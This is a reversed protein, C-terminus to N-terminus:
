AYVRQELMLPEDQSKILADNCLHAPIEFYTFVADKLNENISEKNTGGTLIGDINTSEAAWSGDPFVEIKFKISGITGIAERMAKVRADNEEHFSYGIHRMAQAIKYVIKTM